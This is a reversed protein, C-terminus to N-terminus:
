DLAEGYAAAVAAASRVGDEHFGYGWYAGCYSTRRRRIVTRHERQAATRGHSFV